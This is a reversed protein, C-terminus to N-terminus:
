LYFLKGFDSDCGIVAPLVVKACLKRRLNYTNGLRLIGLYSTMSELLTKDLPYKRLLNATTVASDVTMKRPICCFPRIMRGVFDFGCAVPAIRIKDPHLHLGRNNKLWEDIAFVFEHLKEHDRSIIIADDVYRVYRRAKLVHKIYKDLGDLYVNAFVQSTLNGIPLGYGKPCHWLSKHRPVISFDTGSKVVPNVTPDHFVIQKVLSATLSENGLHQELISWLIDHSISVFFNAIDVQLVWAPRKWNETAGRAFHAARKSAALTGRGKICAFTDPIFRRYFYPELDHCLLHHVIRDRFLAAWVERAKPWTVVFARTRGIKYNGSNIEDLLEMLNREFNVEFEISTFKSRKRKRCDFYADLIDRYTYKDVLRLGKKYMGMARAPVVAYTNNKNPNNVNGNNNVGVMNNSNYETSSWAYNNNAGAFYFRGFM